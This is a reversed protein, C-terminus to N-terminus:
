FEGSQPRLHGVIGAIHCGRGNQAIMASGQGMKRVITAIKGRGSKPYAQLIRPFCEVFFRTKWTKINM